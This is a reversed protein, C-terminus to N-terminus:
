ATTRMVGDSRLLGSLYEKGTNATQSDWWIYSLGGAESLGVTESLNGYSYMESLVTQTTVTVSADAEERRRNATGQALAITQYRTQNAVLVQSEFTILMNERNREAAIIAQQAAISDAIATEFADPLDVETVQLSEVLLFLQEDLRETLRIQMAATIVPLDSFFTYATYNTAAQSLLATATNELVESITNRDPRGNNTSAPKFRYYLDILRTPDYRYQFSIKLSVGLGDATRTQLRNRPESCSNGRCVIDMTQITKPYLIFQHGVGLTHMGPESYVTEDISASIADYDIGYDLQDLQHFSTSLIVIIAIVSLLCFVGGAARCGDKEAMDQEGRPQEGPVTTLEV